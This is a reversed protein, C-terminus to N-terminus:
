QTEKNSSSDWGALKPMEVLYLLQDFGARCRDRNPQMRSCDGALIRRLDLFTMDEGYREILAAMRYRGKRGCDICAIELHDAKLDRLEPLRSDSQKLMTEDQSGM